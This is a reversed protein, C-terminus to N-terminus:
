QSGGSEPGATAAELDFAFGRVGASGTARWGCCGCEVASRELGGQGDPRYTATLAIRKEREHWRKPPHSGPILGSNTIKEFWDMGCDPCPFPKMTATDILELTVPPNLKAVIRHEWDLWFEVWGAEDEPTGYAVFRSHWVRLNDEPLMHPVVNPAITRLKDLITHELMTYQESADTDFPVKSTSSALGNGGTLSSAIAERLQRILPARRVWEQKGEVTIQHPHPITLHDIVDLLTATM